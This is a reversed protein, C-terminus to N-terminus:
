LLEGLLVMWWFWEVFGDLLVVWCFWEVFGDM